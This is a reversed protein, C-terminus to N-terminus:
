FSQGPRERLKAELVDLRGNRGMFQMWEGTEGLIRRLDSGIQQFEDVWRPQYPIIAVPDSKKFQIMILIRKNIARRCRVSPQYSPLKPVPLPITDFPIPLFPRNEECIGMLGKYKGLLWRGNQSQPFALMVVMQLCYKLIM